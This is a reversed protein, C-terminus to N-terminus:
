VSERLKAILLDEEAMRREREAEFRAKVDPDVKSIRSPPITGVVPGHGALALEEKWGSNVFTAGRKVFQIDKGAMRTVYLKLARMVEPVDGLRINRMWAKRAMTHDIRKPYLPWFQEEFIAELESKPAM